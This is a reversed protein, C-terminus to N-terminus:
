GLILLGVFALGATLLALAAPSTPRSPPVRDPDPGDTSITRTLTSIRQHAVVVIALWVGAIIALGTVAAPRVGAAVVRSVGLLVVVTAALTTRRWALRTREVQLGRDGGHGARSTETSM